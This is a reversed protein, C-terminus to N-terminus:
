IDLIERIVVKKLKVGGYKIYIIVFISAIKCSLNSCNCDCLM